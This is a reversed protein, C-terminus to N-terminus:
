EAQRNEFVEGKFEAILKAVEDQFALLPDPLAALMEFSALLRVDDFRTQGLQLRGATRNDSPHALLNGVDDGFHLVAYDRFRATCEKSFIKSRQVFQKLVAQDEEVAAFIINEEELIVYQQPIVRSVRVAELGHVRQKLFEQAFRAQGNALIGSLGFGNIRVILQQFQGMGHPAFDRAQFLLAFIDALTEITAFAEQGFEQVGAIWGIQLSRKAIDLQPEFVLLELQFFESWLDVRCFM